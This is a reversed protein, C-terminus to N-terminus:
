ACHSALAFDLVPFRCTQYSIPQESVFAYSLPLTGVSDPNVSQDYTRIRGRSGIEFTKPKCVQFIRGSMEVDAVRVIEFISDGTM